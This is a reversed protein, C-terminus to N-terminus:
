TLKLLNMAFNFNVTFELKTWVNTYSVPVNKGPVTNEHLQKV